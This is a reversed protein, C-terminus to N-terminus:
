DVHHDLDCSEGRDHFALWEIEDDESLNFKMKLGIM